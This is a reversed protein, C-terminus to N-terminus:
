SGRLTALRKWNERVAEPFAAIELELREELSPTGSHLGLLEDADALDRAGGAYLKLILLGYASLVRVNSGLIPRLETETLLRETWKWGVVVDIPQPGTSDLRVVGKLPDSSDGKRIEISLNEDRLPDWFHRQLCEDSTVLLDIDLTSRGLGFVGLAVAGILAHPINNAELHQVVRGLTSM